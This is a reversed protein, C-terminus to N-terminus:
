LYTKYFKYLCDKKSLYNLNQMSISIFTIVKIYKKKLDSMHRIKNKFIMQM